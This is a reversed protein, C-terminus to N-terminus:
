ERAPQATAADRGEAGADGPNAEAPPPVEIPQETAGNEPTAAREQEAGRQQAARIAELDIKFEFEFPTAFIRDAGPPAFTVDLVYTRDPQLPQGEWGLPFRYTQTVRDWYNKQDEVTGIAKSWNQLRTGRPDGSAPRREFLEFRFTGWAKVPDNMVDTVRVTAEVGDPIADDDFSKPKTFPLVVLQQPQTLKRLDEVTPETGDSGASHSCGTPAIACLLAAFCTILVIRM